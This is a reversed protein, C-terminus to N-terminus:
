NLAIITERSNSPEAVFEQSAVGVVHAIEGHQSELYDLLQQIEAMAQPGDASGLPSLQGISRQGLTLPLTVRWGNEAPRHTKGSWLTATRGVLSKSRTFSRRM